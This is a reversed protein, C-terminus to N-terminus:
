KTAHIKKSAIFSIDACPRALFFTSPLNRALFLILVIKTFHIGFEIEEAWDEPCFIKFL